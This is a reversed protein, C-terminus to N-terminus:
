LLSLLHYGHPSNKRKHFTRETEKQQLALNPNNSKQVLCFM